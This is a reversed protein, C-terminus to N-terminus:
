IEFPFAYIIDERGFPVSVTSDVLVFIREGANKTGVERIEIDGDILREYLRPNEILFPFLSGWDGTVFFDPVMGNEYADVFDNFLKPQSLGRITVTNLCDTAPPFCACGELLAIPSPECILTRKPKIQEHKMTDMVEVMHEEPKSCGLFFLVFVFKSGLRKMTLNKHFDLTKLM